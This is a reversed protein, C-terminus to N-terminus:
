YANIVHIEKESVFKEAIGETVFVAGNDTVFIVDFEEKNEQWFATAKEQGMVYLSTSLGDALTGDKCVITVSALGKDAPYGTSPDIIHHYTIGNEEFYREYGGSTIVACDVVELVGVAGEPVAPDIIGVRWPSGDTKAGLVQVNGGLNIVASEVEYEQLIQIVRSSTYGKAIGGFDIAMGEVTFDITSADTDVVINDVNTLNLASQLTEESPVKFDDSIFGWATMVPFIAINFTGDTKEYLELSRELLYMGDESLVGGGNQNVKYTEGTDSAATLLCDLRQIEEIAASVAEKANDGYASVTMYTDMAFVDQTASIVDTQLSDTNSTQNCGALALLGCTLLVCLFKKRMDCMEKDVYLSLNLLGVATQIEARNNKM